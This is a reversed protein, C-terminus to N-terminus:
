FGGYNIGNDDVPESVDNLIELWVPANKIEQVIKEADEEPPNLVVAKQTQMQNYRNIIMQERQRFTAQIESVDKIWMEAMEDLYKQDIFYCITMGFVAGVVLAVIVMFVEM